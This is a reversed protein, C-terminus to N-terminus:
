LRNLFDKYVREFQTVLAPLENIKYDNFPKKLAGYKLVWNGIREMDAARGTATRKEWGIERAMSIIKKRMRDAPDPATKSGELYSIMDRAEQDTMERSSDSRGSTFSFVLDKKHQTKGSQTLLLHLRSNLTTNM